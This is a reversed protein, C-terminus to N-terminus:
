YSLIFYDDVAEYDKWETEIPLNDIAANEFGLPIVEMITKELM